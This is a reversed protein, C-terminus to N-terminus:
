SENLFQEKIKIILISICSNKDKLGERYCMDILHNDSYIVSKAEKSKRINEFIKKFLQFIFKGRLKLEYDALIAQYLNEDPEQFGCEELFNSKFDVGEREMYRESLLNVEKVKVASPNTQWLTVQHAFWKAINTILSKKIELEDPFLLRAIQNKGDKYLDNEICYGSTFWIDAYENPIGTFLWMDQDAIFNVKLHAFENRSNYVELLTNRGGCPIFDVNFNGIMREINGFLVIETDGEVLVTPLSSHKLTSVITDVDLPNPQNM